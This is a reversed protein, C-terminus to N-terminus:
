FTSVFPLGAISAVIYTILVGVNFYLPYFFINHVYFPSSM